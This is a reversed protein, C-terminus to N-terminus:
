FRVGITADAPEISRWGLYGAAAAFVVAAGASLYANRKAADGQRQLEDYHAPDSGPVFVGNQLMADADGYSGHASLGQQVALATFLGAAVGTGIAAPRM